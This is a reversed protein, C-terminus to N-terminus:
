LNYRNIDKYADPSSLYFEAEEPTLKRKININSLGGSYLIWRNEIFLEVDFVSNQPGTPMDDTNISIIKAILGSWTEIYDGTKYKEENFNEFLRLHKM